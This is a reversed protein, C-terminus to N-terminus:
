NVRAERENDRGESFKKVALVLHKRKWDVALLLEVSEM